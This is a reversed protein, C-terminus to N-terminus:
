RGEREREEFRNGRRLELVGEGFIIILILRRKFESNPFIRNDMKNPRPREVMKLCDQEPCDQMVYWPGM